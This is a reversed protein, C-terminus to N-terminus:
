IKPIGLMTLVAGIGVTATITSIVDKEEKEILERMEEKTYDEPKKQAYKMQKEVRKLARKRIFRKWKKVTFDKTSITADVTGKTIKDFM